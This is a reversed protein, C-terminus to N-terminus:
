TYSGFVLAVPRKGRCDALRVPVGANYDSLPSLTFDPAEDGPKPSAAELTVMEYISDVARPDNLVKLMEDNSIGAAGLDRGSSTMQEIIAQVLAQKEDAM